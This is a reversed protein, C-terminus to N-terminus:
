AEPLHRVPGSTAANALLDFVYAAVSRFCIVEATQADRLWFAGAVQGIRTRRLEGLPFADPHLDAPTVKALVERLGAGELRIVARGDSVDAALHHQGALTATIQSLARAVEDRPLLILVEDPAMWLLAKEEVCHAARPGPFDLGAIGTCVNKFAPDSLDGKLTIMGRLGADSVRVDGVQVKGELASVANSM